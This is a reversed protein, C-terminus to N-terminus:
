RKAVKNLQVFDDGVRVMVSLKLSLHKKHGRKCIFLAVVTQATDLTLRQGDAWELSEVTYAELSRVVVNVDNRIALIWGIVDVFSLDKTGVREVKPILGATYIAFLIVSVPLGQPDWAEVPWREITKDEIVMEITRESLFNHM